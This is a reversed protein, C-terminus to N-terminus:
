VFFETPILSRTSELSRQGFIEQPLPSTCRRDGARANKRRFNRRRFDGTRGRIEPSRISRRRHRANLGMCSLGCTWANLWTSQNKLDFPITEKTAYMSFPRQSSTDRLLLSNLDEGSSSVMRLELVQQKRRPSASRCEAVRRHHRPSANNGRPIGWCESGKTNVARM